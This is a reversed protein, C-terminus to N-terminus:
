ARGWLAPRARAAALLRAAGVRACWAELAPGPLGRWRLDDLTEALPVTTVLTALRRYLLAEGRRAALTAALRPAGRLGAPWAAPDDPIAELRGFAGLLAAATREGFGPLGPIGDADDGILALLDPVSAPAV